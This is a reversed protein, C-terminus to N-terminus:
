RRSRRARRAPKEEEEDEEPEKAARRSRRAPKEEDEEAAKAGRRRRSTPKEEEEEPEEADGDTLIDAEQAADIVAAQMKRLTKFDDLDVDLDHAEILDQLEDQSMDGIDDETVPAPEAKKKGRASRGRAPKEDEEDEAAAKGRKAKAGKAPKEDELEWFDILRPRNKGDYPEMEIKGMLELDVLEDLDIDMSDDPVEVGIAELMAKVNWLSQPALSTNNYVRAGEPDGSCELCWNLYPYKDGDEQTVEVVRLPYDGDVQFRGLTGVGSFDVSITNSKKAARRAM